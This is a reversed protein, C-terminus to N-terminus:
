LQRIKLAEQCTGNALSSKMAFAFPMKVGKTVALLSLLFFAPFGDLITTHEYKQRM